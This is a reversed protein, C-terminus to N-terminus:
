KLCDYIDDVLFSKFVNKENADFVDSMVLSVDLSNEQNTEWQISFNPQVNMIRLTQLNIEDSDYIKDFHYAVTYKLQLGSEHESIKTLWGHEGYIQKEQPGDETAVAELRVGGLTITKEFSFKWSDEDLIFEKLQDETINIQEM